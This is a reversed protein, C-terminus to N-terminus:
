GPFGQVPYYFAGFLFVAKDHAKVKIAPVNKSKM